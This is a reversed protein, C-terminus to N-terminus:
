KQIDGCYENFLLRFKLDNIILLLAQRQDLTLDQFIELFSAITTGPAIVKSFIDPSLLSISRGLLYDTTVNFFNAIAVLKEIDPMHQNNEYNSITGVTVYIKDALDKQTMKNDERLERLLEGFSAM